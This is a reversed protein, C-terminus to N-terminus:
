PVRFFYDSSGVLPSETEKLNNGLYTLKFVNNTIYSIYFNDPIWTEFNRVIILNSDSIFDYWYNTTQGVNSYYWGSLTNLGSFLRYSSIYHGDTFYLYNQYLTNTITTIVPEIPFDGPLTRWSDMINFDGTTESFIHFFIYGNRDVKEAGSKFNGNKWCTFFLSDGIVFNNSDDKTQPPKPSSNNSTYNELELINSQTGTGTQILKLTSKQKASRAELIFIGNQPPSVQFLYIGPECFLYKQACHRGMIDYLSVSVTGSEVTNLTVHTSGDVPNSFNSEFGFSPFDTIQEEIGVTSSFLVTDPYMKVWKFGTRLNTIQVSDYPLIIMNIRSNLVVRVSQSFTSFSILVLVFFLYMKKM